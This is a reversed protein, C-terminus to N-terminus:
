RRNVRSFERQIDREVAKKKLDERKDVAVKGKGIGLEIKVRGNKWYFRLAVLTRGQVTVEGFLRDIEKRHLLLKRTRKPEHQEHSAREYPKIDVGYLFVEGDEIRAFAGMVNIFGERISKIETGTLSVGAELRDLIHYDRLAKRNTAIEASMRATM